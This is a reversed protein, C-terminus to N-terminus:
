LGYKTSVTEAILVDFEEDINISEMNTM